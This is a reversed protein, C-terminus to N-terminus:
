PRKRDHYETQDDSLTYMTQSVVIRFTLVADYPPPGGRSRDLRGGQTPTHICITFNLGTVV